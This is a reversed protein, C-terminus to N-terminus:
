IKSCLISKSKTIDRSTCNLTNKEKNKESFFPLVIPPSNTRTEQVCVVENKKNAKSGYKYM